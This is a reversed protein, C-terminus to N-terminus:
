VFVFAQTHLGQMETDRPDAWPVLSRESLIPCTARIYVHIQDIQHM